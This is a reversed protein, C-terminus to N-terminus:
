SARARRPLGISPDHTPRQRGGFWSQWVHGAIWLVRVQAAFRRAADGGTVAVAASSLGDRWLYRPIRLLPTADQPFAREVIAVDRGNQFLWRRFYARNLREPPVLHHVVADPEYVGHCGAHLLRLFFEHDEGTRLTGDLKGLDARLGGIRRVVGSRVAMNAGIPMIHENVGKAIPLRATGGDSAALVGSLAPSLWPPPPAQWEPLTRGAVFDVQGDAFAAAVCALWSPEPRVDDDTFVLIDGRAQQLAVNVARSKGPEAVYLYRIPAGPRGAIDRVLAATGDTSGNDAVIIEYRDRPWDQVTLASLTRALLVARNRTAVIVSLFPDM